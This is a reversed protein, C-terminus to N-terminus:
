LHIEGTQGEQAGPQTPLICPIPRSGDAGPLQLLGFLVHKDSQQLDLCRSNNHASDWLHSGYSDSTFSVPVFIQNPSAASM